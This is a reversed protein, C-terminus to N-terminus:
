CTPVKSHEVTDYDPGSPAPIGFMALYRRDSEAIILSEDTVNPYQHHVFEHLIIESVVQALPAGKKSALDAAEDLDVVTQFHTNSENGHAEGLQGAPLDQVLVTTRRWM